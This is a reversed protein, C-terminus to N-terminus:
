TPLNVLIRKEIRRLFSFDLDWPNNTAAIIFIDENLDSNIGDMQILIETKLWRSAEHEGSDSRKSIISDIEDIFIISPKNCRAM